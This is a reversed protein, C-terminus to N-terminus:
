WLSFFSFDVLSARHDQEDFAKTIKLGIQIPTKPVALVDDSSYPIGIEV